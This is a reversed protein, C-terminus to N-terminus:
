YAHVGFGSDVLTPLPLKIADCFQQLATVAEKKDQYGNEKGCDLDLYFSKRTHINQVNKPKDKSQFTACGYYVEYGEEELSAIAESIQLDGQEYYLVLPVATRDSMLGVLCLLGDESLVTNFLNEPEM